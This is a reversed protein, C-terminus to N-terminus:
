AQIAKWIALKSASTCIETIKAGSFGYTLRAVIGTDVDLELPVKWLVVKM